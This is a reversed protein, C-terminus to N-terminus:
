KEPDKIRGLHHEKKKSPDKGYVIKNKVIEQVSRLNSRDVGTARKKLDSFTTRRSESKVNPTILNIYQKKNSFSSASSLNITLNLKKPTSRSRGEVWHM